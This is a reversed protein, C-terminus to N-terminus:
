CYDISARTAPRCSDDFYIVGNKDGAAVPLMSERDTLKAWYKQVTATFVKEPTGYSFGFSMAVFVCGSITNGLTVPILNKVIFDKPTIPAGLMIALPMVFRCSFCCSFLLCNTDTTPVDARHLQYTTNHQTRNRLSLQGFM